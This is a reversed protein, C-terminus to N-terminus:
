LIHLTISHHAVIIDDNKINNFRENADSIDADNAPRKDNGICIVVKDQENITWIEINAGPWPFAMFKSPAKRFANIADQAKDIDDQTAPRLDSGLKILTFKIM